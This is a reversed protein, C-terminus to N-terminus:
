YESVLIMRFPAPAQPENSVLFNWTGEPMDTWDIQRKWATLDDEFEARIVAAGDKVKVHISVMNSVHENMKFVPPLETALIDLLWHCGADACEGVGDSYAFNRALPHRIFNNCGNRFENYATKFKEINM